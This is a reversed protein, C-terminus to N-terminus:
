NWILFKGNPNNQYVENLKSILEEERKSVGKNNGEKEKLTEEIKWQFHKSIEKCFRLIVNHHAPANNFQSELHDGQFLEVESWTLFYKVDKLVNVIEKDLDLEEQRNYDIKPVDSNEELILDESAIRRHYRSQDNQCSVDSGRTFAKSFNPENDHGGPTRLMSKKSKWLNSSYSEHNAYERIFSNNASTGIFSDAKNQFPQNSNRRDDVMKLPRELDINKSNKETLYHSIQKKEESPIIDDYANQYVFSQDEIKISIQSTVESNRGPLYDFSHSRQIRNDRCVLKKLRKELKNYSLIDKQYVRDLYTQLLNDHQIIKVIELPKDFLCDHLSKIKRKYNINDEYANELSKKMLKLSKKIEEKEESIQNYEEEKTAAIVEFKEMDTKLSYIEETLSYVQKMYNEKSDKHTEWDNKYRRIEKKLDYSTQKNEQKLKIIENELEEVKMNIGDLDEM